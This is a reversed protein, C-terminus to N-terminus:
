LHLALEFDIRSTDHCSWGCSRPVRFSKQAYVFNSIREANGIAEDPAQDGLPPDREDLHALEDAEVRGLDVPPDVALPDLWLVGATALVRGPSLRM